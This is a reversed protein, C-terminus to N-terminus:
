RNQQGVPMSVSGWLQGYWPHASLGAANAVGTDTQVARPTNTDDVYITIKQGPMAYGLRDQAQKKVYAPDDWRKRQATLDDVRQQGAAKARKLEAIESRQQLYGRLTPTLVVLMVALLASFALFRRVTGPDARRRSQVPAEM